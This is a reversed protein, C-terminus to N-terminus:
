EEEERNTINKVFRGNKDRIDYYKPVDKPLLSHGCNPCNLAGYSPDNYKCKPCRM